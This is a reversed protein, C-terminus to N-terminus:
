KGVVQWLVATDGKGATLLLNGNSNFAFPSKAERLTQRLLGTTSDWMKIGKKDETVLIRGDPSFLSFLPMEEIGVKRKRLM